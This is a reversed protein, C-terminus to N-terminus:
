LYCYVGIRITQGSSKMENLVISTQTISVFDLISEAPLSVTALEIHNKCPHLIVIQKSERRKFFHNFEILEDECRDLFSFLELEVVFTLKNRFAGTSLGGVGIDAFATVRQIVLKVPLGISNVKIYTSHRWIILLKAVVFSLSNIKHM